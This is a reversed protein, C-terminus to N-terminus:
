CLEGSPQTGTAGAETGHMECNMEANYRIVHFHPTRYAKCADNASAQAEKSRSYPIARNIWTM